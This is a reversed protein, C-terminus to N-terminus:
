KKKTKKVPKEEKKEPIREVLGRKEAFALSPDDAIEAGALFLTKGDYFNALVRIM